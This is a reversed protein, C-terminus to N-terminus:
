PSSSLRLAGSRQSGNNTRTGLLAAQLVHIEVSSQGDQATSYTETKSTPITTNRTLMKRVVGGMVEVALTLPTVDLLLVDTVEGGLVGGKIAAGVAVVEVPGVTQSVDQM